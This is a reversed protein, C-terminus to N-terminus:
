EQLNGFNLLSKEWNKALKKALKDFTSCELQESFVAATFIRKKFFEYKKRDNEVISCFKWYRRGVKEM